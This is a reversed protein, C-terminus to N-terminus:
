LTVQTIQNQPSHATDNGGLQSMRLQTPTKSASQMSAAPTGTGGLSREALLHQLAKHAALLEAYLANCVDSQVAPPPAPADVTVSSSAEPPHTLEDEIAGLLKLLERKIRVREEAQAFM